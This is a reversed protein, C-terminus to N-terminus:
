KEAVLIKWAFEDSYNKQESTMRPAYTDLTVKGEAFGAKRAEGALDIDTMFGAFTENNNYTEWNYMFKELPASGRPIELHLMVGGPKLIRRSERLLNTLASRSTEHLVIHSVV